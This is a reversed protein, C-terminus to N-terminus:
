NNLIISFRIPVLETDLISFGKNIKDLIVRGTATKKLDSRNIIGDKLPNVKSDSISEGSNIVTSNWLKNRASDSLNDETTGFEEQAAYSVKEKFSQPFINFM